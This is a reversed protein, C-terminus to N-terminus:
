VNNTVNVTLLDHSLLDNDFMDEPETQHSRTFTPPLYTSTAQLAFTGDLSRVNGSTGPSVGCRTILRRFIAQFQM